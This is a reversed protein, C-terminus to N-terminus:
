EALKEWWSKGKAAPKAKSSAAATTYKQPVILTQGVQLRREQVGPNAQKLTPVGVRYQTAISELTEGQAVKHKTGRVKPAPAPKSAPKAATTKAKPAPAKAKPAPQGPKYGRLSPDIEVIREALKRDAAEYAARVKPDRQAVKRAEEYNQALNAASLSFPLALLALIISKPM